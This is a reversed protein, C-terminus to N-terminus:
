HLGSSMGHRDIFRDEDDTYNDLVPRAAAAIQNERASHRAGIADLEMAQDITVAGHQLSQYLQERPLLMSGSQLSVMSPHAILYEKQEVSLGREEAATFTRKSM